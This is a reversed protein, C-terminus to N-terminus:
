SNQELFELTEAVQQLLQRTNIVRHVERGRCHNVCAEAALRAATEQLLYSTKLPRHITVHPRTSEPESEPGKRRM